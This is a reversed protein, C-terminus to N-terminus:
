INSNIEKLKNLREQKIGTLIFNYTLLIYTPFREIKNIFNDNIILINSKENKIKDNINIIIENSLASYTMDISNIGVQMNLEQEQETTLNFKIYYDDFTYNNETDIILKVNSLNLKSLIDISMPLIYDYDTFFNYNSSYLNNNNNKYSHVEAFISIPEILHTGIYLSNIMPTWKLIAHNIFSRDIKIM